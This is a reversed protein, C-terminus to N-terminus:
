KSRNNIGEYHSREMFEIAVLLLAIGLFLGATVDSAFHVGLYIRSIMIMFILFDLLVTLVVKKSKALNSKNVLYILFGYITIAIMTHGSPFSYSSEVILNIDIPRNRRVINKVILNVLVNILTLGNLVMLSKNKLKLNILFIVISLILIFKVSAFFTFIKMITTVYDNKFFIVNNYILDDYFNVKNFLYLILIAIFILISIIIKTKRKM